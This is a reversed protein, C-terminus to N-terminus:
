KCQKFPACQLKVSLIFDDNGLVETDITTTSCKRVYPAVYELAVLISHNGLKKFSFVVLCDKKEEMAGNVRVIGGKWTVTCSVPPDAKPIIVKLMFVTRIYQEMRNDILPQLEGEDSKYFMEPRYFFSYNPCGTFHRRQYKINNDYFTVNYDAINALDRIM